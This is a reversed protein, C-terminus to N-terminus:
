TSLKRVQQKFGVRAGRDGAAFQLLAPGGASVLCDRRPPARPAQAHTAAVRPTGPTCPLPRGLPPLVTCRCPAEWLKGSEGGGGGGLGEGGSPASGSSGQAAATQTCGHLEPHGQQCCAHQQCTRRPPPTGAGACAIRPAPRNRGAAAAARVSDGARAGQGQVPESFVIAVLSCSLWPKLCGVKWARGRDGDSSCAARGAQGLPAAEAGAGPQEDVCM